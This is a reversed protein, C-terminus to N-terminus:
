YSRVLHSAGTEVEVVGVKVQWLHEVCFEQRRRHGLRFHHDQVKGQGSLHAQVKGAHARVRLSGEKGAVNQRISGFRQGLGIGTVLKTM